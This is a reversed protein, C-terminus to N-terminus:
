VLVGLVQHANPYYGLSTRIGEGSCLWGFLSLSSIRVSLSLSVSLSFLSLLSSLSLSLLSSFLLSSFLLSSFLLSLSVCLSLCLCLSLSLSLSLLSLICGLGFSTVKHMPVVFVWLQTRGNKVVQHRLMRVPRQRHLPVRERLVDLCCCPQRM